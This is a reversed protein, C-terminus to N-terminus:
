MQEETLTTPRTDAGFELVVGLTMIFKCAIDLDLRDIWSASSGGTLRTILYPEVVAQQTEPEANEAAALIMQHNDSVRGAFDYPSRPYESAPLTLIQLLHRPCIRFGSLQWEVRGYAADVCDQQIDEAYCAPCLRLDQRRTTCSTLSQDNVTYRQYGQTKIAYRELDDASTGTLFGVHQLTAGKGTVVDTWKIGM